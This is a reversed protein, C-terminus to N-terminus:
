GRFSMRVMMMVGYFSLLLSTFHIMMANSSPCLSLSLSLSLSHTHTHTDTPGSSHKKFLRKVKEYSKSLGM